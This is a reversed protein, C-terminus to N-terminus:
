SPDIPGIPGVLSAPAELDAQPPIPLAQGALFADILGEVEDPREAYLSHGAGELYVLWADPLATALDTGFSWPLYDCQPKIILAPAEVEALGPRLDPIRRVMANTFAGLGRPAPVDAPPRCYLGPASRAYSSDFRRDMEDDGIFARAAAPNVQSVLWALLARPQLLELYLSARQAPGLRDVMGTGWSTAYPRIQGPALFVLAEVASPHKGAYAAALTGGYSHGVLVARDVGLVDLLAELDELDRALTYDSPDALRSSHGAGVQDYLIVDRGTGTLRGFFALDGAMDAVGPGGHLVVIPPDTRDGAGEVRAYALRSGTPLDAIQM